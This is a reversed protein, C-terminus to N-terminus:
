IIKGHSLKNFKISIGWLVYMLILYILMNISFCLSVLSVENMDNSRLQYSSEHSNRIIINVLTYFIIPFVLTSVDSNDIFFCTIVICILYLVAIIPTILKSPTLFSKM